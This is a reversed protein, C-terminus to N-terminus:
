ETARPGGRFGFHLRFSRMGRRLFIAAPLAFFWSLLSIVGGLVIEWPRYSFAIHHKGAPLCVGRLVRNARYILLPVANSGETFRIASWNPDYSDSLVLMAPQELQVDLEIRQPTDLTWDVKAGDANPSVRCIDSLIADPSDCEVVTTEILDRFQGRDLFIENTRNAIRSRSLDRLEPLLAVSKAIWARPPPSEREWYSAGEFPPTLLDVKRSERIISDTPVLAYRVALLDLPHFSSAWAPEHLDDLPCRHLFELLAAYDASMATGRSEVVRTGNLWHYRPAMSYQEWVRIAAIRDAQSQIKWAAPQLRTSSARYLRHSSQKPFATIANEPAAAWMDSKTSFPSPWVVQFVELVAILLLGRGVFASTPGNRLAFLLMSLGLSVFFTRALAFRACRSAGDSDFPGYLSSAPTNALHTFPEPSLLLLAIWAISSVCAIVVFLHPAIMLISSRARGFEVHTNAYNVLRDFGRAALMAVALSFFVLWKSPYRFGSYAPLFTVWFWYLGGAASNFQDDTSQSLANWLSGFGWAGFSSLISILAVFTASRILRHSWQTRIAILAAILALLGIYNTNTWWRQSPTMAKLWNQYHPGLEGFIGPVVLELTRIPAFSFDYLNEDHTNAAPRTLFASTGVFPSERLNAVWEWISRPQDFCARDSRMTWTASPVIQIAGLGMALSCAFALMMWRSRFWPWPLRKRLESGEAVSPELISNAAERATRRWSVSDLLAFLAVHYATQPDGGLVMMALPIALLAAKRPERRNRLSEWADWAWPLWAAGILFVLNFCQGAVYGSLAFTLAAFYQADISTTFRKALRRAGFVAILWHLAVLWTIRREMTLPAHLLVRGPYFVISTADAALPQGANDFPNWLPIDGASWQQTTYFLTPFYFHGADRYAPCENRWLPPIFIAAFAALVLLLGFAHKSFRSIM